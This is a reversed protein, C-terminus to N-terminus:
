ALAPFIGGTEFQAFIAIIRGTRNFLNGRAPKAHCGFIQIITFLQFNLDRLPCLRALAALQWADLHIRKNGFQAMGGGPYRQNRRRRMVINIRDLIQCLQNVVQLLYVRCCAYADLQHGRGADACNGGPHGLGFGICDQYRTM